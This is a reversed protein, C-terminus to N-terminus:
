YGPNQVLNKNADMESQPVPWLEDKNANYKVEQTNFYKTANTYDYVQYYNEDISVMDSETWQQKKKNM